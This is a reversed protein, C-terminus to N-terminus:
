NEWLFNRTCYHCFVTSYTHLYITTVQKNRFYPDIEELPVCPKAEQLFRNRLKKPLVKGDEFKPNPAKAGDQQCSESLLKFLPEHQQQTEEIESEEMKM